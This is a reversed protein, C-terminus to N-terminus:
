RGLMEDRFAAPDKRYSEKWESFSPLNLEEALLLATKRVLELYEPIREVASSSAAGSAVPAGSPHSAAFYSRLWVEDHSLELFRKAVQTSCWDLYLLRLEEEPSEAAKL